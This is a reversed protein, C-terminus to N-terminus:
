QLELIKNFIEIFRNSYRHQRKTREYGSQAIAERISDNQLYYKIMDPLDAITNYVAVETGLTLYQELFSAYNTLQFGRQAPIEFHRGKIQERTKDTRLYERLNAYSSLVFRIDYTKSNSMNLNIKSHIFIDNMEDFSVRGNPWQSGFAHVNIGKKQLENIMWKRSPNMAGIFSVDYKYDIKAPTAELVDNTAWQSLIANRYGLKHYRDISFHDTTIVWSFHSCFKSSFDDFRWQDDCFWNVTVAKSKLYDLTEISFNEQYLVFFIIDPKYEDACKRIDRQLDTYRHLYPGFDFLRTESFIEKLSQYFYKSEYSEGRDPIGYDDKLIVVLIKKNIM